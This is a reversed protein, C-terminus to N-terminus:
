TDAMSKWSTQYWLAMGKLKPCFLMGINRAGCGHKAKMRTLFYNNTIFSSLTGKTRMLKRNCVHTDNSCLLPPCHSSRIEQLTQLLSECHRVVDDQEHGDIYIGKKHSVPKFGLHHLWRIATRISITSPFNPPIHSTVLSYTTM